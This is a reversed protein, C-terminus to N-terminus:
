LVTVKVLGAKGEYDRASSWIFASANDVLGAVVPNQHLYHMARSLLGADKLLIPHNDQQWFQFNSNNSNNRGAFNFMRIMWERRSEQLNERIAKILHMATYKKLDRMIDSLTSNTEANLSIVLHVHNTMIVWGYVILGKNNICHNLSNTFVLRYEDRTFVDIWEVVAFSVFYYAYKDSFKYGTSM